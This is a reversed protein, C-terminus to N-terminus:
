ATYDSMAPHKHQMLDPLAKKLSDIGANFARAEQMFENMDRFLDSIPRAMSGPAHKVPESVQQVGATSHHREYSQLNVKFGALTADNIKLRGQHTLTGIGEQLADMMTNRVLQRSAGLKLLQLGKNILTGADGRVNEDYPTIHPLSPPALSSLRRAVHRFIFDRAEDPHLKNLFTEGLQQLREQKQQQASANIGQSPYYPPYNHEHTQSIHM